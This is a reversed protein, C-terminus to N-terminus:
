YGGPKKGHEKHKELYYKYPIGRIKRTERVFYIENENDLQDVIDVITRRSGPPCQLYVFAKKENIFSIGTIINFKNLTKMLKFAKERSIICYILSYSIELFDIPVIRYIINMEKLMHFRKEVERNSVDTIDGIDKKMRKTYDEVNVIDTELQIYKCLFIDILDPDRIREGRPPLTNRNDEEDYLKFFEEEFNDPISFPREFHPFTYYWSTIECGIKNRIERPFTYMALYKPKGVEIQSFYSLFYDRKFLKDWGDETCNCFELTKVMGLADTDINWGTSVLRYEKLSEITSKVCHVSKNTRRAIEEYPEGKSFYTMVDLNEQNELFNRIEEKSANM